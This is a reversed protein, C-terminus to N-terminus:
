VLPVAARRDETAATQRKVHARHPKGCCRCFLDDSIVFHRRLPLESRFDKLQAAASPAEPYKRAYTEQMCQLEVAEAHAAGRNCLRCPRRHPKLLAKLCISPAARRLQLALAAVHAGEISALQAAPLAHVDSHADYSKGEGRLTEFCKADLLHMM